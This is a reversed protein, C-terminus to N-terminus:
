KLLRSTLKNNLRDSIKVLGNIEKIKNKIKKELKKLNALVQRGKITKKNIFLRASKKNWFTGIKTENKYVIYRSEWSSYISDKDYGRSKVEVSETKITFRCKVTKFRM